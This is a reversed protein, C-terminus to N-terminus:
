YFFVRDDSLEVVNGQAVETGEDGWCLKVDSLEVLVGRKVECGGDDCIVRDDSREVVDGGKVVWMDGKDVPWEVESDSKSTGEWIDSGMGLDDSSVRRNHSLASTSAFHTEELLAIHVLPCRIM